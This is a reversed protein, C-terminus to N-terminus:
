RFAKNATIHYVRVNKETYTRTWVERHLYAKDVVVPPTNFSTGLCADTLGDVGYFVSTTALQRSTLEKMSRGVGFSSTDVTSTATRFANANAPCAGSAKEKAFGSASNWFNNGPKADLETALDDDAAWIGDANQSQNVTHISLPGRLGPGPRGRSIESYFGVLDAGFAGSKTTWTADVASQNNLSATGTASFDLYKSLTQKTPVSLMEADALDKAVSAPPLEGLYRVNFKLRLKNTSDIVYYTFLPNNDFTRNLASDPKTRAYRAGTNWVADRGNMATSVEGTLPHVQNLLPESEVLYTASSTDTVSDVAGTTNDCFNAIGVSDNLATANLANKQNQNLRRDIALYDQVSSGSPRKLMLGHPFVGMWKAGEFRGPGMVVVCQTITKAGKGTNIASFSAGSSKYGTATTYDITASIDPDGTAADFTVRPDFQFRLGSEIRSFNVNNYGGPAVTMDRLYNLTADVSASVKRRNGYLKWTGDVQQEVVEPTTYGSGMNDQWNINVALRLPSTNSLLRIDVSNFKAGATTNITNSNLARAWRLMFPAGNQLYDPVALDACAPDLTASATTKNTLRSASSVAFCTEFKDLLTKFKPPAIVSSNMATPAASGASKGIVSTAVTDTLTSTAMKNALEIYGARANLAVHDLLLDAGEGNAKFPTTLPDFVVGAVLKDTLPKLVTKITDYAGQVSAETMAALQSPSLEGVVSSPVLLSTAATTLQSINATQAGSIKSVVAHHVLQRDGMQVAATIQFPAAFGTLDGFSYEGAQDALVSTTKGSVDRLTVTAGAMPAGVAAVGSLSPTSTTTGSDSSGLSAQPTGGGGGCAVLVAAAAPLLVAKMTQKLM